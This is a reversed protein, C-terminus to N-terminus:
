RATPEWCCSNARRAAPTSPGRCSPAAFPGTTWFDATNGRSPSGRPSASCRHHPQEGPGATSTPRAHGSTGRGQRHRLIAALNSDGDNPYNKAANIGGQRRHQPGAPPTMFASPKSMYGLEALSASAFGRGPRNRHGPYQLPAQQRTSLKLEFRHPDWKQTVPGAPIKADLRMPPGKSPCCDLIEHCGYGAAPRIPGRGGPRGRYSVVSIAPMYKPHNAGLTQFASWFGHRVHFAVIVM